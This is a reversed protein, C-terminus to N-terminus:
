GRQQRVAPLRAGALADQETTLGAVHPSSQGVHYDRECLEPSEVSQGHRPLGESKAIPTGAYWPGLELFRVGAMNLILQRCGVQKNREVAAKFVARNAYTLEGALDLIAAHGLRRETIHM